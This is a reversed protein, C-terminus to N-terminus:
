PAVPFSISSMVTRTERIYDQASPSASDNEVSIITLAKIVKRRDPSLLYMLATRTKSSEGGTSGLIYWAERSNSYNLNKEQYHLMTDRDWSPSLTQPRHIDVTLHEELTEKLEKKRDTEYMQVTMVVSANDTIYLPLIVTEKQPIAVHSRSTSGHMITFMEYDHRELALSTGDARKMTLSNPIQKFGSTACGIILMASLLLFPMYIARKM